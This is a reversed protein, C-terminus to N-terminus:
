KKEASLKELQKRLAANEAVLEETTKKLGAKENRRGELWDEAPEIIKDFDSLIDNTSNYRIPELISKFDLKM